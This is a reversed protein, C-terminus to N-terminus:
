RAPPSGLPRAVPSALQKASNRRSTNKRGKSYMAADRGVAVMEGGSSVVADCGVAVMEGGSSGAADRGVAVMEGCSSVVADRGVAVMGGCSCKAQEGFKVTRDDRITVGGMQDTADLGLICPFGFPKRSLVFAEVEAVTGCATVIRVHAVGLCSWREEAITLTGVDQRQWTTCWDEHILTRTCGSDVMARCERGDVSLMVSPLVGM